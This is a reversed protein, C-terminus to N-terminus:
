KKPNLLKGMSIRVEKSDGAKVIAANARDVLKRELGPHWKRIAKVVLDGVVRATTGGFGAIHECVLNDYSLRSALVRCRFVADPLLWGKSELRFITECDLNLKVRLRARVKRDSLRVGSVWKQQRFDVHADFSIFASFTLRGPQPRKLDRLDLVLTDKLNPATVRVRRWIGQNKFAYKRELHSHIGKGKWHFGDPKRETHGWGPSAEYLTPPMAELILGRLTGALAAPSGEAGKLLSLAKASDLSPKANKPAARALPVVAGWILLSCCVLRSVM